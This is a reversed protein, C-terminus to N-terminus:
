WSFGIGVMVPIYFATAVGAKWRGGLSVTSVGIGLKSAIAASRADAEEQVIARHLENMSRTDRLPAPAPESIEHRDAEATPHALFPAPPPTVRASPEYRYIAHIEKRMDTHPEVAEADDSGTAAVLPAACVLLFVWAVPKM